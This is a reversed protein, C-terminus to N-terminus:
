GSARSGTFSTIRPEVDSDATVSSTTNTARTVRLTEEAIPRTMTIDAQISTLEREM